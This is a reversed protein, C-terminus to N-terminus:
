RGTTDLKMGPEEDDPAFALVRLWVEHGDYEGEWSICPGEDEPGAAHATWAVDDVRTFASRVQELDLAFCPSVVGGDHAGGVLEVPLPHVLVDWAGDEERYRFGLPGPVGHSTMADAVVEVLSTLWAPTDSM